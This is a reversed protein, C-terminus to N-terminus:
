LNRGRLMVGESVDRLSKDPEFGPAVRVVASM